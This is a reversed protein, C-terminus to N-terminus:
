REHLEDRSVPGKGGINFGQDFLALAQRKSREYTEEDGVLREIQCALLAILSTGCRAALIKAIQITKRDLRITVSQKRNGKTTAM